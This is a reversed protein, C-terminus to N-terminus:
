AGGPRFSMYLPEVFPVLRGVQRRVMRHLEDRVGHLEPDVDDPDIEDLWRLVDVVRGRLAENRAVAEDVRRAPDGPAATGLRQLLASWKDQDQGGEEGHRVAQGAVAALTEAMDLSDADMTDLEGALRLQLHQLVLDMATAVYRAWRDEIKLAVTDNLSLRLSALLEEATPRV